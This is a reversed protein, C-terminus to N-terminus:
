ICCVFCLVFNCSILVTLGGLHTERRTQLLTSTVYLRLVRKAQFRWFFLLLVREWGHTLHTFTCFFVKRSANLFSSRFFLPTIPVQNFHHSGTIHVLSPHNEMHYQLLQQEGWACTQPKFNVLVTILLVQQVCSWCWFTCLNCGHYYSHETTVQNSYIRTHVCCDSKEWVGVKNQLCAKTM